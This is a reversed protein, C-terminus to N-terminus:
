ERRVEKDKLLFNLIVCIWVGIASIEIVFKLADWLQDPIM